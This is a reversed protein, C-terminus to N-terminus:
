LSFEKLLKTCTGHKGMFVAGTDKIAEILMRSSHMEDFDPYLKEVSGNQDNIYGDLSISMGVIVKGM